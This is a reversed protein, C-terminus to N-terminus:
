EGADAARLRETIQSKTGYSPVDRAEAAARLEALSMGNYDAAEGLPVSDEGYADAPLEPLAEGPVGEVSVPHGLDDEAVVQPESVDAAPSLDADHANTAGGHVTIKPSM